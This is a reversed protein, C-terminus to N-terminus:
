AICPSPQTIEEMVSSFSLDSPKHKKRLISEAWWAKEGNLRYRYGVYPTHDVDSIAGVPALECETITVDGNSEPHMVSVLIAVEGVEFLAKM